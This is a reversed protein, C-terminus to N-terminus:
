NYTFISRLKLIHEGRLSSDFFDYVIELILISTVTAISVGIVGYDPILLLNLTINLIIGFISRIFINKQKEQM